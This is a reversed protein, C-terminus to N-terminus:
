EASDIEPLYMGAAGPFGGICHIKLVKSVGLRVM